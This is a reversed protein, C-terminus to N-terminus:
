QLFQRVSKKLGYPKPSDCLRRDQPLQFARPGWVLLWIIFTKVSMQADRVGLGSGPGPTGTPPPSSWEM